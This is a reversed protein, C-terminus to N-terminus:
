VARGIGRVTRAHSLCEYREEAKDKAANRQVSALVLGAVFGEVQLGFRDFTNVCFAFGDGNAETECIRSRMVDIDNGGKKRRVIPYVLM